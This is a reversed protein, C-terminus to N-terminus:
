HVCQVACYNSENQLWILFITQDATNERLDLLTLAQGVIVRLIVHNSIIFCLKSDHELFFMMFELHSNKPMDRFIRLDVMFILKELLVIIAL